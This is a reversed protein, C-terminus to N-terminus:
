DVARLYVEVAAKIQEAYKYIDNLSEIRNKTENKEADITGLYKVTASNFHLRCIPKRGNDDLLIGCYTQRDRMTVRAPDIIERLSAKVILYGEVEEQTTVIGDNKTEGEELPVVNEETQPAVPASIASMDAVGQIRELLVGNIYKEFAAKVMPRFSEIVCARLPGSTVQSAFIRVMEDSPNRMEAAILQRIQRMHKLEQAASLAIDVNFVDNALKKLEPILSEEVQDFDFIMFPKEDMVNPKDLDSYFEYRVGNTLIGIRATSINHFYRHLQSAKSADLQSTCCKAEICFIIDGDRKIAYDIKEGKKTGIDATYEMIVVRPDSTDYGLAQIFPNILAAKTTEETTAHPRLEQVRNALAMIRDSFDM